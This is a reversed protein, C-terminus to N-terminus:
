GADIIIIKIGTFDYGCNIFWVDMKLGYDKIFEELTGKYNNNNTQDKWYKELHAQTFTQAYDEKSVSPDFESYYRQYDHRRDEREYFLDQFEQDMEHLDLILVEARKFGKKTKTM